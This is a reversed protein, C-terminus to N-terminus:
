VLLEYRQRNAGLKTLFSQGESSCIARFCLVQKCFFVISFRRNGPADNELEMHVHANSLLVKEESDLPAGLQLGEVLVPELVEGRWGFQPLGVTILQCALAGGLVKSRM